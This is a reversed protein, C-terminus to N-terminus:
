AVVTAAGGLGLDTRSVGLIDGFLLEAVDKQYTALSSVLVVGLAFMAAFLIGIATDESVRRGRSIVAIGVTTVLGVAFAGLLISRGLAFAIVIGPFVAHTLADGIFALGRLVVYSGLFGCAIGTLVVAVLARRMFEFQLPDTLYHLMLARPAGRPRSRARRRRESDPRRLGGLAARRRPGRGGARLRDGASGPPMDPRLARKGLRPRPEVHRDDQGRRAAPVPYRRIGGRDRRRRRLAARRAPAPRRGPRPRPRAAGAPAPRRLPPRDPAWRPRGHRGGRAGGRGPAARGPVAAAALRRAPLEGAARRRRRQTPLGLGTPRAPAPVRHQRGRRGLRAGPPGDRAPRPPPDDERRREPRDPRRHRRAPAGGHRGRGGHPRRLRRRPRPHVRSGSRTRRDGPGDRRRSSGRRRAREAGRRCPASSTTSSSSAPPRRRRACRDSRAGRSCRHRVASSASSTTTIAAPRACSSCPRAAAAARRSSSARGAGASSPATPPPSASGRPRGAPPPTSSACASRAGWRGGPRSSSPATTGTEGWSWPASCVAFSISM